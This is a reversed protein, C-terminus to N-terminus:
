TEARKEKDALMACGLSCYMRGTQDMDHPGFHLTVWGNPPTLGVGRLLDLEVVEHKACFDCVACKTYAM